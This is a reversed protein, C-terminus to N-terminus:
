LNYDSQPWSCEEYLDEGQQQQFWELLASTKQAQEDILFFFRNRARSVSVYWRKRTNTNDIALNHAGILLVTDFAQSKAYDITTVILQQDPHEEEVFTIYKSIEELAERVTKHQFENFIEKLEEPLEQNNEQTNLPDSGIESLAQWVEAFKSEPSFSDILSLHVQFIDIEEQPIDIHQLINRDMVITMLPQENNSAIARLHNVKQSSSFLSYLLQAAEDDQQRDMILRYYMLVQRVSWSQYSKNMQVSFPRQLQELRRKIPRSFSSRAAMLAVRGKDAVPLHDVFYLAADVQTYITNDLTSRSRNDASLVHVMVPKHNNKGRAAVQSHDGRFLEALDLVEQVSRYNTELTYVWPEEVTINRFRLELVSTEKKISNNM